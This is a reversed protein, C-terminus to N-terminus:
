PCPIGGDSAAGAGDRLCLRRADGRHPGPDEGTAEPARRGTRVFRARFHKLLIEPREPAPLEAREKMEAAGFGLRMGGFHDPNNLFPQTIHLM